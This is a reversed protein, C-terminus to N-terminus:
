RSGPSVHGLDASLAVKASELTPLGSLRGRLTQPRVGPIRVRTGCPEDSTNENTNIVIFLYIICFNTNIHEGELPLKAAM